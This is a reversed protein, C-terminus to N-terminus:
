YLKFRYGVTVVFVNEKANGLARKGRDTDALKSIPYGYYGEVFLNDKEYGAGLLIHASRKHLEHTINYDKGDLESKAQLHVGFIFGAMIDFNRVPYYRMKYLTTLNDFSYSYPGRRDVTGDERTIEADSHFNDWADRTGQRTYALEFSMGWHNNFYTQLIGGIYPGFLYKGDYNTLNSAIVGVVPGAYIDFPDHWRNEDRWEQAHICVCAMIIAVISTLIRKMEKTKAEKTACWVIGSVCIKQLPLVFM